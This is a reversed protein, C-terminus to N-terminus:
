LKKLSASGKNLGSNARPSEGRISATNRPSHSRELSTFDARKINIKKKASDSRKLVKSPSFLPLDDYKGNKKKLALPPKSRPKRIEEHSTNTNLADEITVM